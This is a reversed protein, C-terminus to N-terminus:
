GVLLMGNQVKCHQLAPAVRRVGISNTIAPPVRGVIQVKCAMRFSPVYPRNVAFCAVLFM